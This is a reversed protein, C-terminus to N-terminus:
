LFDVLFVRPGPLRRALYSIQWAVSLRADCWVSGSFADRWAILSLTLLSMTHLLLLVAIPDVFSRVLSWVVEGISLLYM